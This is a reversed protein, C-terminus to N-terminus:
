GGVVPTAPHKLCFYPSILQWILNFNLNFYSHGVALPINLFTVLPRFHLHLNLFSPQHWLFHGSFNNEKSSQFSHWNQVAKKYWAFHHGPGWVTTITVHSGGWRGCEVRLCGGGAMQQVTSCQQDFVRTKKKNLLYEKVIQDPPGKFTPPPCNKELLTLNRPLLPIRGGSGQVGIIYYCCPYSM